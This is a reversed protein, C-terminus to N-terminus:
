LNILVLLIFQLTRLFFSGLVFSLIIVLLFYKMSGKRVMFDTLAERIAREEIRKINPIRNTEVRRFEQNKNIYRYVYIFCTEDTLLVGYLAKEDQCYKHLQKVAGTYNSDKYKEVSKTLKLEVVLLAKKFDPDDTKVIIDARNSLPGDFSTTISQNEIQSPKINFLEVLRPTIYAEFEEESNFKQKELLSLMEKKYIWRKM